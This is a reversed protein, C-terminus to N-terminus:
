KKVGSPAIQQALQPNLKSLTDLFAEDYDSAAITDGMLEYTGRGSAAQVLARQVALTDATNLGAVNVAAEVARQRAEGSRPSTAPQKHCASLALLAMAALALNRMSNM